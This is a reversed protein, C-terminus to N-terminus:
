MCGAHVTCTTYHLLLRGVKYMGNAHAAAARTHSLVTFEDQDARSVNFKAALRDSSHGMVEGTTYNAIAPAEPALDKLQLGKLLGLVGPIGKKQAKALGLLRKRIPKSFRIPVDSFTEVGGVCL